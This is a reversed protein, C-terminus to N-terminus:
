RVQQTPLGWSVHVDYWMYTTATRNCGNGHIPCIGGPCADSPNFPKYLIQSFEAHVEEYTRWSAGGRCDLANNGWPGSHSGVGSHLADQRVLKFSRFGIKYLNDLYSLETIESSVFQPLYQKVEPTLMAEFCGPEAGEIDLKLYHPKGFTGFVAGCPISQVPVATCAQLDPVHPPVCSRCGVTSYFSNWERTCKSLYFTAWKESGKDPSLAVNALRLQGTTLWVGFNALAMQVLSPDAEIAVVCFGGELYAKSDAGDYFGLDFVTNSATCTFTSSRRSTTYNLASIEDHSFNRSFREEVMPHKLDGSPMFVPLEKTAAIESGKGDIKQSSKARLGVIESTPHDSVAAGIPSQRVRIRGMAIQPYTFVLGVLKTWTLM